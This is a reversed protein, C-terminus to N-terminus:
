FKGGKKPTKEYKDGIKIASKKDGNRKIELILTTRDPGYNEELIPPTWKQNKWVEYINSLGSGAREGIGILNFMKILIVNRPDSIGGSFADEVSIRMAGSNSIKIRRSEKIIVLGQREYYNAHILANALAERLAKHVPTDDVRESGNKLQFPIKLDQYDLFYNPFEKLIENEHGFM